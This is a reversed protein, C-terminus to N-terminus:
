SAIRAGPEAPTSPRGHLAATHRAQVGSELTTAHGGCPPPARTCSSAHLAPRVSRERRPPAGASPPM